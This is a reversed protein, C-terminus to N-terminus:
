LKVSCTYIAKKEPILSLGYFALPILGLAWPFVPHSFIADFIADANDSLATVIIVASCGGLILLGSVLTIVLAKTGFRSHMTGMFSGWTGLVLSVFLSLVGVLLYKAQFQGEHIIFLITAFFAIILAPLLRFIQMGVFAEKRSSGFSLATPLHQTHAVINMILGMFGGFGVLYVLCTLVHDDGFSTDGLSMLLTYLLSGGVSAGAVTASANFWYRLRM